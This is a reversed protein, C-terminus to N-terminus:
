RLMKKSYKLLHANRKRRAWDELEDREKYELIQLQQSTPPPWRPQFAIRPLLCHVASTVKEILNGEKGNIFAVIAKGMAVERYAAKRGEKKMIAKMDDTLQRFYNTKLSVLAHM